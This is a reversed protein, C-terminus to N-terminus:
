RASPKAAGGRAGGGGGGGKGPGKPAPPAGAPAAPKDAGGSGTGGAGGAGGTGKAGGGDAPATPDGLYVVDGVALGSAVVVRADNRKGLEVDVPVPGADTKKFVISKVGREAVAEIPVSLVDDLKDVPISVRTTMGPRVKEDPAPLAVVIEFEKIESDERHTTALEAVKKIVGDYTGEPHADLTVKAARDVKVSAIDVEHVWGLVELAALDPIELLKQGPWVTDGETPKARTGGRWSEIYLVLGPKPARLELKSQALKADNLNSLTKTRELLLLELENRGAGERSARKEKLVSLRLEAEKLALRSRKKDLEPVTDSETVDLRAREVSVEALEIDRDMSAIETAMDKKKQQIRLDIAALEADLRDLDKKLDTSDFKMLLDGEAVTEGEKVLSVIQLQYRTAPTSITVKNVARIEGEVELAVVFPGKEVAATPLSGTAAIGEGGGLWLWLGGGVAAAVVLGIVLWRVRGKV